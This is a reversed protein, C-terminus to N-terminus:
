KERPAPRMGSLMTSAMDPPQCFTVTSTISRRWRIVVKGMIMFGGACIRSCRRSMGVCKLQFLHTNLVTDTMRSKNIASVIGDNPAMRLRIPAEVTVSRVNM